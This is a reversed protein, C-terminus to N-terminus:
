FTRLTLCGAATQYISCQAAGWLRATACCCHAPMSTCWSFATFVLKCRTSAVLLAAIGLANGNVNNMASRMAEPVAGRPGGGADGKGPVKMAALRPAAASLKGMMDSLMGAASSPEAVALAGLVM